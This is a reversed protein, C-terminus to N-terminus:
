PVLSERDKRGHLQCLGGEDVRRQVLGHHRPRRVVHARDRARDPQRPRTEPEAHQRTSFCAQPEISSPAPTSWAGTSSRRSRWSTSNTSPTPIGTYDELWALATAHLDFIEDRNRAIRTSDTERHYMHMTRGAREATEIQFDGAAFSFLYTSIPRTAAFTMTRREGITDDSQVSGNAVATWHAPVTLTLQYVAKLNPQDFSPFASSARDPVFLTYLFDPNRNLAGDGALFTIEVVNEGATIATAPIVVHGNLHEFAVEENDVYAALVSGEAATFDLVLPQSADSTAFHIAASGRVRTDQASPIEFGLAYRVDSLTTSRHESLTRSVGPATDPGGGCGGWLVLAPLLWAARRSRM